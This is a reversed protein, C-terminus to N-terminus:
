EDDYDDDGQEFGMPGAPPMEQVPMEEDGPPVLAAAAATDLSADLAALNPQAQQAFPGEHRARKAAPQLQPSPDYDRLRWPTKPAGDLMRVDALHIVGQCNLGQLISYLNCLLIRSWVTQLGNGCFLCAARGSVQVAYMQLMVAAVVPDASPLGSCEGEVHCLQRAGEAAFFGLPHVSARRAAEAEEPCSQAGPTVALGARSFAFSSSKSASPQAAGGPEQLSQM